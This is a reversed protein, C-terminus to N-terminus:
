KRPHRLLIRGVGSKIWRVGSRPAHGEANLRDAIQRISLGADRWRLMLALVEAEGQLDGYPAQGLRTGNSRVQVLADRTREAGLNREFEAAGLMMTLLMKGVASSTNLAQGGGLDIIHVGVGRRAWREICVLGDAANRWLRDLKCAVLCDAEDRELRHLLEKGGPRHSLSKGASVGEDRLVDVLHIGQLDCYARLRAEQAQLSVGERAQEETSVRIYGLARM